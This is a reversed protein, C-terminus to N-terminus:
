PRIFSRQAMSNDSNKWSALRVFLDENMRRSLMKMACREDAKVLKTVFIAVNKKAAKSLWSQEVLALLQRLTRAIGPKNELCARAEPHLIIHSFLLAANGILLSHQSKSFQEYILSLM